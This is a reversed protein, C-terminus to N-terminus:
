LNKEETDYKIVQVPCTQVAIKIGQEYKKTDVAPRVRAIDTVEFVEPALFECRGCTICGPLISVKKM